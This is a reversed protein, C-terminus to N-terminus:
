LCRDSGKVIKARFKSGAIKLFINSWIALWRQRIPRDDDYLVTLAEKIDKRACGVARELEIRLRERDEALTGM